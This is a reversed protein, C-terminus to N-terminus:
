PAEGFIVFRDSRSLERRLILNGPNIIWYITVEYRGPHTLQYCRPDTYILWELTVPVPLAADARYENAQWPSGCVIVTGENTVERVDARWAGTFDRSITRDLDVTIDQWRSADQVDFRDVRLWFTAPTMFLFAVAAMILIVLTVGIQEDARLDSM